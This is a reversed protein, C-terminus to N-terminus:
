GKNAKLFRGAQEGWFGESDQLSRAYMEEYTHQDIHARAAIEPPVPYTKEATM